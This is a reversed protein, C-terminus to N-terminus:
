FQRLFGKKGLLGASPLFLLDDNRLAAAGHHEDAQRTFEFACVPAEM